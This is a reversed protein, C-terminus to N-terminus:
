APPISPRGTLAAHLDRFVGVVRMDLPRVQEYERVAEAYARAREEVLRAARRAREASPDDAERVLIVEPDAM